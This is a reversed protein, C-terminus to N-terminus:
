PLWIYIVSHMRTCGRSYSHIFAPISAHRSAYVMSHPFVWCSLNRNRSLCDANEGLCCMRSYDDWRASGSHVSGPMCLPILTRPGFKLKLFLAPPSHITSCEGWFGWLRPFIWWWWMRSHWQTSKILFHPEPHPSCSSCPPPLFM